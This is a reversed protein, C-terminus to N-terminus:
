LNIHIRRANEILHESPEYQRAFDRLRERIRDAEFAMQKFRHYARTGYGHPIANVKSIDRENARIWSEILRQFKNDIKEQDKIILNQIMVSGVELQENEVYTVVFRRTVQGGILSPCNKFKQCEDEIFEPLVRYHRFSNVDILVFDKICRFRKLSKTQSLFVELRKLKM